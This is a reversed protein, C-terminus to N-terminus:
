PVSQEKKLLKVKEWLTKKFRKEEIHQFSYIHVFANLVNHFFSFINAVLM